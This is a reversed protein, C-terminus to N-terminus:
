ATAWETYIARTMWPLAVISIGWPLQAILMDFSKREIQLQWGLDTSRLLGRRQLFSVRLGAVSTRGLTKWHEIVAALLATAEECTPADLLGASMPLPDEPGLGLLPKIIGLEFEFAEDRGTALWHLLAAARPLRSARLTGQGDIIGTAAFLQPLFPHLLVLGANLVALATNTATNGPPRRDLTPAVRHSSASAASASPAVSLPGLQAVTALTAAIGDPAEVLAQQIVPEDLVAKLAVLPDNLSMGADDYQTALLLAQIRLRLPAPLPRTTLWKLLGSLPTSRAQSPAGTQSGCLDEGAQNPLLHLLRQLWVVRSQFGPGAPLVSSVNAQAIALAQARLGSLLKDDETGHLPWPLQGSALYQLLAARWDQQTSLRRPASAAEGGGEATTDAVALQHAILAPLQRLLEDIDRARMSLTLRPIHLVGDGVDLREFAREFAPVIDAELRARLAQRWAFAIEQSPAKVHWRQRRIRHLPQM